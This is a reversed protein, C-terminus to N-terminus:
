WIHLGKSRANRTWLVRMKGNKNEEKNEPESSSSSPHEDSPQKEASCNALSTTTMMTGCLVATLVISILKKM